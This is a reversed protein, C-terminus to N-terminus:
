PELFHQLYRLCDDVCVYRWTVVSLVGVSVSGVVRRRGDGGVEERVAVRMEAVLGSSGGGCSWWGAVPLGATFWGDSGSFFSGRGKCDMMTFVGEYGGLVVNWTVRTDDLVEYKSWKRHDSVEIDFRFLSNPDLALETCPKTITLPPSTSTTLTIIFLLNQLTISPQPPPLHCRKTATFGLNYLRHYPLTTSHLHSISPFHTTCPHAWLHDSTMTTCWQKSVCSATALTKPDLNTAVLTLVEWPINSEPPPSMSM